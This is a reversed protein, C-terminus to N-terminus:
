LGFMRRVLSVTVIQEPVVKALAGLAFCAEQRVWYVSDDAVRQVEKVFAQKMPESLCGLCVIDAHFLVVVTHGVV